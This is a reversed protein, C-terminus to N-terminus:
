GDQLSEDEGDEVEDLNKINAGGYFEFLKRNLYDKPNYNIPPRYVRKVPANNPNKQGTMMGDSCEHFIFPRCDNTDYEFDGNCRWCISKPM